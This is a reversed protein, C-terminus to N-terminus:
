PRTQLASCDPCFEGEVLNPVLQGWALVAGDVVRDLERQRLLLLAVAGQGVLGAGVVAASQPPVLGADV